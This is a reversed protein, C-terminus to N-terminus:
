GILPRSPRTGGLPAVVTLRSGSGARTASPSKRLYFESFFPNKQGLVGRYPHPPPFWFAGQLRNPLFKTTYEPTLPQQVGWDGSATSVGM